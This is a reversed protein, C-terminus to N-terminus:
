DLRSIKFVLDNMLRPTKIHFFTKDYQLKKSKRDLPVRRLLGLSKM